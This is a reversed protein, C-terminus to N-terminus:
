DLIEVAMGKELEISDQGQAFRLLANQGFYVQGDEGQCHKKLVQFVERQRRGDGPRITPIACRSCPKVLEFIAEGIRLRRWAMEAFAQAGQVVINPRFRWISLSDNFGTQELEQRLVNLSEASALLVPFGDAFGVGDGAQAFALDVQRHSGEPFYCLRVAANVRESLWQNVRDPAVIAELQDAWVQVRIRQHPNLEAATLQIQGHGALCHLWLHQALAGQSRALIRCLSPCQRQTVFHGQADVLMWRRDGAAGEAFFTLRGQPEAALSKVPYACLGTVQVTM